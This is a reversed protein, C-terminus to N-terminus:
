ANRPLHKVAQEFTKRYATEAHRYENLFLSFSEAFEKAQRKSSSFVVSQLNATPIVEEGYVYTGHFVKEGELDNILLDYTLESGYAHKWYYSVAMGYKVIHLELKNEALEQTSTRKIVHTTLGLYSVVANLREVLLRHLKTEQLARENDQDSEAGYSGTAENDIINTKHVSM